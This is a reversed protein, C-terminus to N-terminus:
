GSILSCLETSEHVIVFWKAVREWVYLAVVGNGSM